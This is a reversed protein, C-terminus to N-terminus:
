KLFKPKCKEMETLFLLIHRSLSLHGNHALKLLFFRLRSMPIQSIKIPIVQDFEEQTLLGSRLIEMKFQVKFLNLSEEFGNTHISNFLTDLKQVCKVQQYITTKKKSRTISNPNYVYHCYAHQLYSIKINNLLLEIIVLLDECYHINEPFSINYKFYLDHKILKNWLSGILKNRLIDHIIDKSSLLNPKEKRYIEKDPLSLFFDVILMDSNESSIKQYMLELVDKEVWDDSDVHISYKGKAEKIGLQRASSVGGNEKHFVRIRSDFAGYQDCILGSKDISGDNILLIEYNEFTQQLISDLCRRIHMEANYVTVIISIEPNLGLM